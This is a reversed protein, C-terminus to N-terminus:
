SGTFSKLRFLQSAQTTGAATDQRFRVLGKGPSFWMMTLSTAAKGDKSFESRQEVALASVRGAATDIEQIGLVKSKATQNGVGGLPTPGKGVQDFSEGTKVPFKILMQPPEYRQSLKNSSTQYLGSDNVLWGTQDVVKGKNIIDLVAETGRGTTEVKTVRFTIEEQQSGSGQQNQFNTEAEYVWQNGMKLPFLDAEKGATITIPEVKKAPKPEYGNKSGCGVLALGALAALAVVIRNM